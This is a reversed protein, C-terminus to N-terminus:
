CSGKQASGILSTFFGLDGTSTDKYEWKVEKEKTVAIARSFPASLGREFIGNELILVDSEPNIQHAFAAPERHALFSARDRQWNAVSM